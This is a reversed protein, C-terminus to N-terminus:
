WRPKLVSIGLPPFYAEISAPRSHSCDETAMVGPGNGTNTGGYYESDSSFIERLLLVDARGVEDNAAGAYFQV